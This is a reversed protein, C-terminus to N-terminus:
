AVPYMARVAEELSTKGYRKEGKTPEPDRYLIGGELYSENMAAYERAVAPPFVAAYFDRLGEKPIPRLEVSRGAAAEFAKQVDVSTYARPGHLEFIHPTTPPPTLSLAETALTLGIDKVAIMPLAHDLPTLTTFMFGGQQITEICMAWNEMFYAARVFIVEPAADKLSVEATHNTIIEGTGHDYQAGASSLYVLRKVGAKQVANKVNESVLKAHAVSDQEDFIPPTITIVTDSGSFDLTGANEVDGKVAEFHPHAKFDEPVKALDRYYGKVSPKSPDALLARIAAQGTKPSAPVVTIQM